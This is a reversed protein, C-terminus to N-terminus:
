QAINAAQPGNKERDSWAKAIRTANLLCQTFGGCLPFLLTGAARMVALALQALLHTREDGSSRRTLGVPAQAPQGRGVQRASTLDLFSM